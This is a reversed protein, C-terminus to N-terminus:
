REATAEIRKKRSTGHVDPLASAYSFPTQRSAQTLGLLELHCHEESRTTRHLM